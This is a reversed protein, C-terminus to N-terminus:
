EPMRPRIPEPRKLDARVALRHIDSVDLGALGRARRARNMKEAITFIGVGKEWLPALLLLDPSPPVPPAPCPLPEPLPKPAAIPTPRARFAIFAAVSKISRGLRHAIERKDVDQALLDSVLEHEAPTFTGTSASALTAPNLPPSANM